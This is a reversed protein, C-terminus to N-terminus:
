KQHFESRDKDGYGWEDDNLEKGNYPANRLITLATWIVLFPSLTFLTVVVAYPTNNATLVAYVFLYITVFATAFKYNKM